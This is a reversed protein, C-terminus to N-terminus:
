FDSSYDSPIFRPVGAAIAGELLVTQADVIVERLGSLASVVCTAGECARSVEAVSGTDVKVIEVGRRQLQELKGSATSRRAMARVKAGRELLATAIRYGLDGTAGALVILSDTM